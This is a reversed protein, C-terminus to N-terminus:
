KKTNILALISSVVHSNHELLLKTLSPKNKTEILQVIEKHEKASKEMNNGQMFSLCQTRLLPWGLRSYTEIISQSKSMRVICLHFEHNLQAYSYTDNELEMKEFISRLESVHEKSLTYLNIRELSMYELTNRIELLDILDENSYKRVVAGRKPYRNVLGERTLLYIAERIPARSTGLADAYENEVIKDGPKLEGTIIQKVIKRAITSSLSDDFTNNLTM